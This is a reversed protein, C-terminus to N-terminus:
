SQHSYSLISWVARRLSLCIRKVEQIDDLFASLIMRVSELNPNM